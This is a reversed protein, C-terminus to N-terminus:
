KLTRECIYNQKHTCDLDNMLRSPGHGFNDCHEIGGYNNPENPHWLESAVPKGSPFWVHDPTLLDNGSTWYINKDRQSDLYTKIAEVKETTDLSILNYGMGECFKRAGFWHMPVKNEIFYLTNGLLVQSAPAINVFKPSVDPAESGASIYILGLIVSLIGCQTLM